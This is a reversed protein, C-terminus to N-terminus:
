LMLSQFQYILLSTSISLKCETCIQQSAYNYTVAMVYIPIAIQLVM